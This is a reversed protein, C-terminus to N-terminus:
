RASRSGPVAVGDDPWFGPRPEGTRGGKAYSRLRELGDGSLLHVVDFVTGRGAARLATDGESRRRPLDTTLLVLPVDGRAVRLACARGLARWVADTRALGGRHTTFPGPVDFYWADGLGDLAVLDVAVGTGPVRKRRGTITFGAEELCREALQVAGAGDPGASASAPASPAASRVQLADQVRRRAIEVYGPDLDYGVYRRGLLAAAVLASGSGM